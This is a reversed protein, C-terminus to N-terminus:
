FAGGEHNGHKKVYKEGKLNLVYDDMECRLACMRDYVIKVADDIVSSLKKADYFEELYIPEGVYLYNFHFPKHQRYYLMPIIPKQARIAFLAAGDKFEKMVKTGEKNRTGEPYIVFKKDDKLVATIAKYAHLDPQGRHVPIAGCNSLFWNGIKTQFAEAKALVHLEKKYLRVAPILTDAVSYHNCICVAGGEVSDFREKGVVRTPWLALIPLAVIARFFRYFFSM